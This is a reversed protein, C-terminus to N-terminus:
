KIHSDIIQNISKYKKLGLKKLLINKGYIDGVRKMEFYIKKNTMKKNIKKVIDILNIKKGSSINIPKTFEKEVIFHIAKCVDDIHVFDRYANLNYFFNKNPISRFIDPIFHGKKQNKGTFNFIRAIGINFSFKKRNKIIYDEVLKKSKGYTNAPNRRQNESISRNSFSYVHSSSIFLFFKFSKNKTKLLTKLFNISAITNIRKFKNKNKKNTLAAFHIFYDFNKGKFWKKQKEFNEIRHPYSIIKYKKKYKKYFYSGLLGSRGTIVIKKSYV